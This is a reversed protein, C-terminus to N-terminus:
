VGCPVNSMNMAFLLMVRRAKSLPWELRQCRTNPSRKNAHNPVCITWNVYVLRRHIVKYIISSQTNSNLVGHRSSAVNIVAM